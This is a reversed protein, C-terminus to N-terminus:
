AAWWQRTSTIRTRAVWRDVVVALVVGLVALSTYTM